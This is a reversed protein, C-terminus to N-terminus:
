YTTFPHILDIDKEYDVGDIGFGFLKLFESQYEEFHTTQLLNESTIKSWTSMIESQVGTEMEWDDLRIRGKEDVPVKGNEQYLRDQFMRIIQEICGEHTGKQHM